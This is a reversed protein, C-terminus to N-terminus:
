GEKQPGESARSENLLRTIEDAPILRRAGIRLSKLEGTNLLNYVSNRGVSLRHATEEISYAQRTPNNLNATM